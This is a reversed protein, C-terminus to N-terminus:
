NKGEAADWSVPKVDFGSQKALESPETTTGAAREPAPSVEIGDRISQLGNVVVREGAGVGSLVEYVVGYTIGLQVRRLHVKNEGDVVYVYDGQSDALVSEQPIVPAEHSKAPKVAIRVMSGPVLLGNENRYRMSIMMTGTAQDIRNDEFDREGNVPYVEGNALRVTARFINDKSGKFQELQNIYDKDPLTFTVRIPDTQVITTLEAAPTIYNGKTFLAKGARGSIPATIKTYGLNIQATKLAAKAQEVSARSQLMDSEATELSSASVSRQDSAKLRKFYKVARDYGAEAQSLDARAADVAAQFQKSDISFLMQGAKVVTGEKFYVREIEGSVQPKLSVSQIPDAAGIYEREAALDAKVATYLVVSPPRANTQAQQTGGNGNKFTRLLLLLAIVVLIVAVSKSRSWNTKGATQRKTEREPIISM